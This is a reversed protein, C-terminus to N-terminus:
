SNIRKKGLHSEIELNKKFAQCFEMRKAIMGPQAWVLALSVTGQIMSQFFEKLGPAHSNDPGRRGGM